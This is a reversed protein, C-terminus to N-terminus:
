CSVATMKKTVEPHPTSDGWEAHTTGRSYLIAFARWPASEGDRVCARVEAGAVETHVCYSPAGNPDTYRAEILDAARCEIAAELRFDMSEARLRWRGPAADNESRSGDLLSMLHFQRGHCKLYLIHASPPEEPSMRPACVLEMAAEPDEAFHNCHAWLWHPPHQRGWTKSQEGPDGALELRRGDVEIIGSFRTSFHPSLMASEVEGSAYLSEPFHLFPRECPEFRLEWRASHGAGEVVGRCAGNELSNDGIRLRFPEALAELRDMPFRQAIGFNSEPRQRDFFTFWVELYAEGLGEQPAHLTYRIWYGTESRLHNLTLYYIEYCNEVGPKWRLANAQDANRYAAPVHPGSM